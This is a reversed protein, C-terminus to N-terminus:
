SKLVGAEEHPACLCHQVRLAAAQQGVVSSLPSVHGVKSDGRLYLVVEAVMNVTSVFGCIIPILYSAWQAPGTCLFILLLVPALFLAARVSALSVESLSQPFLCATQLM